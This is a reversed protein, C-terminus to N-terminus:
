IMVTNMLDASVLTIKSAGDSLGFCNWDQDRHARHDGILKWVRENQVTRAHPSFSIGLFRGAPELWVQTLSAGQIVSFM